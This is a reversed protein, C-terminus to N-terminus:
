EIGMMLCNEICETQKTNTTMMDHKIFPFKPKLDALVITNEDNAHTSLQM